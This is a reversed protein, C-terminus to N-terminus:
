GKPLYITERYKVGSTDVAKGDVFRPRYRADKIARVLLKGTKAPVHGSELTVDRVHGDAGVTFVLDVPRPAFKEGGVTPPRAGNPPRYFVQVPVDFFAATGGAGPALLAAWADRYAELATNTYGAFMRWDGLDLRARALEAASTEPHADLIEIVLKLAVEGERNPRSYNSAGYADVASIEPGHLFELRHVRAIGRLPEIMMLNKEKGLNSAILLTRTHVERATSYRGMAEFWGANRGLENVLRPIDQGYASVAIRLALQQEQLASEYDGLALYSTILLDMMDLQQPNLLGDVKRSIDLARRLMQICAIPDGNESYLAGLQALAKVLGASNAGEHAEVIALARRYNQEAGADDQARRQAAALNILPEVLQMARPEYQKEALALLKQAAVL